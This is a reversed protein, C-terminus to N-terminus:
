IVCQKQAWRWFTEGRQCQALMKVDVIGGSWPVAVKRQVINACVIGPFGPAAHAKFLRRKSFLL